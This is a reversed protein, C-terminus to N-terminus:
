AGEPPKVRVGVGVAEVIRAPVIPPMEVTPTMHIRFGNGTVQAVTAAPPELPQVMELYLREIEQNVMAKIGAVMCADVSVEGGDAAAALEKYKVRAAEFFADHLARDEPSLQDTM